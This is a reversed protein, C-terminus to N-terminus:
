QGLALRDESGDRGIGCALDAGRVDLTSTELVLAIVQVGAPAAIGVVGDSVDHAIKLSGLDVQRVQPTAEGELVRRAALAPAKLRVYALPLAVPRGGLAPEGRRASGFDIAEVLCLAADIAAM